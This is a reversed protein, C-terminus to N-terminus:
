KYLVIICNLNKSQSKRGINIRNLGGGEGAVLFFLLLLMVSLFVVFCQLAHWTSMAVSQMYFMCM